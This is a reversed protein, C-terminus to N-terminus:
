SSPRCQHNNIGQLHGAQRPATRRRQQGKRSVASDCPAAMGARTGHFRPAGGGGAQLAGPWSMGATVCALSPERVHQAASNSAQLALIRWHLKGARRLLSQLCVARHPAAANDIDRVARVALSLKHICRHAAGIPPVEPATAVCIYTSPAPWPHSLPLWGTPACGALAALCDTGLTCVCLCRCINVGMGVLPSSAVLSSAVLSAVTAPLQTPPTAAVSAGNHQVKLLPATGMCAPWAWRRARAKRAQRGWTHGCAWGSLWARGGQGKGAMSGHARVGM